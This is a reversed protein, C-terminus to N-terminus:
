VNEMVRKFNRQFRAWYENAYGGGTGLREKRTNGPGQNYSKVLYELYRPELQSFMPKLTQFYRAALYISYYPNNLKSETAAADLDRATPMTVQMIGWSKGDSSKSNEIDNPAELGRAVSPAKGLDSENLAIAKLVMWGPAPKGDFLGLPELGYINASDKFWLDYKAWSDLHEEVTEAIETRNTFALYASVIFAALGLAVFNM